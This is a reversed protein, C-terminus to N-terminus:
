GSRTWREKAGCVADLWSGGWLVLGRDRTRFLWEVVEHVEFGVM